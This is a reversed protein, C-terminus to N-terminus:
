LAKIDKTFIVWQQFLVLRLDKRKGHKLQKGVEDITKVIQM